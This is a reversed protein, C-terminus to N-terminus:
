VRLLWKGESNPSIRTQIGWKGNVFAGKRHSAGAPTPKFLLVDWGEWRANDYGEVFRHVADIDLKLM